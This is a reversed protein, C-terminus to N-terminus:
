GLIRILNVLFDKEKQHVDGDSETMKDIMIVLAEKKEKTMNQLVEVTKQSSLQKAREMFQVDFNLMNMLEDLYMLEGVKYHDDLVITEAITKVIAMKEAQDFNLM